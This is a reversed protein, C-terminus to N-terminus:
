MKCKANIRISQPGPEWAGRTEGTNRLGPGGNGVDIEIAQVQQQKQQKGNRGDSAAQCNGGPLQQKSLESV